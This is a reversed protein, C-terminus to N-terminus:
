DQLYRGTMGFRRLRSPGGQEGYWRKKIVRNKTGKGKYPIVFGIRCRVKMTDMNSTNHWISATDCGQKGSPMVKV